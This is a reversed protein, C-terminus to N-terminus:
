EIETRARCWRAFGRMPFSLTGLSSHQRRLLRPM